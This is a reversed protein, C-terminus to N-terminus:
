LRRKTQQGQSRRCNLLTKLSSPRGKLASVTFFLEAAKDQGVLKELRGRLEFELFRGVPECAAAWGFMQTYEGVLNQYLDATEKDNMKQLHEWERGAM